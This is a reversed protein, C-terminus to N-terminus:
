NDLITLGKKIKKKNHIKKAVLELAYQQDKAYTNLTSAFNNLITRRKNLYDRQIYFVYYDTIEGSYGSNTDSLTSWKELHTGVSIFVSDKESVANTEFNGAACTLLYHFEDENTSAGRVYNYLHALKDNELTIKKKKFFLKLENYSKWLPVYKYQRSILEEYYTNKNGVESYKKILYLIDSDTTLYILEADGASNKVALKRPNILDKYDFFEYLLNEEAVEDTNNCNQIKKLTEILSKKILYQDYVVKQHNYIWRNVFFKYNLMKELEPIAKHSLVLFYKGAKYQITIASVLRDVDLATSSVGSAWRDRKSYDLRDADIIYGNLLLIICNIFSYKKNYQTDKKTLNYTVGTIMRALYAKSISRSELKKGFGKPSTSIIASTIEHPKPSFLKSDNLFRKREDEELLDSLDILLREKDGNCTYYKEFTHSFPSHGVDHLLCACKYTKFLGNIVNEYTDEFDSEIQKKTKEEINLKLANIIKDGMFYVGLSHLFRNHTAGPFIVHVSSQEIKKLRQFIPTDIFENCIGKEIQIYGHVPDLFRKM